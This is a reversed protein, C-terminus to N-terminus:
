SGIIPWKSEMRATQCIRSWFMCPHVATSKKAAPTMPIGMYYGKPPTVMRLRWNQTIVSVWYGTIDFPAAAKATSPKGVPGPGGGQSHAPLTVVILGALLPLMRRWGFLGRRSQHGLTEAKM